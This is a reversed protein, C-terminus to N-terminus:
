MQMNNPSAFFSGEADKYTGVLLYDTFGELYDQYAASLAENKEIVIIKLKQTKM